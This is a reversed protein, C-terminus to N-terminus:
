LFLYYFLHFKYIGINTFTEKQMKGNQAMQMMLLLQQVQPDAGPVNQNPMYNNAEESITQVPVELAEPSTFLLSFYSAIYDLLESTDITKGLIHSKISTYWDHLFKFKNIISPSALLRPLIMPIDDVEFLPEKQSASKETALDQIYTFGPKGKSLSIKFIDWILKHMTPASFYILGLFILIESISWFEGKM